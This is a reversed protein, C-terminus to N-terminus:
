LYGKDKLTKAAAARYRRTYEGKSGTAHEITFMIVMHEEGRSCLFVRGTKSYSYEFLRWDGLNKDPDVYSSPNKKLMACLTLAEHTKRGLGLDEPKEKALWVSYNLLPKDLGVAFIERTKPISALENIYDVHLPSTLLASLQDAVHRCKPRTLRTNIQAIHESIANFLPQENQVLDPDNSLPHQLRHTISTRSSDIRGAAVPDQRRARTSVASPARAALIFALETIAAPVDRRVNQALVDATAPSPFVRHLEVLINSYAIIRGRHDTLPPPTWHKEQWLLLPRCRALWLKPPSQQM